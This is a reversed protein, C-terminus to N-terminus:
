KISVSSKQDGVLRVKQQNSQSYENKLCRFSKAHLKELCNREEDSANNHNKHKLDTNIQGDRKRRPQVLKQQLVDSFEEQHAQRFWEGM